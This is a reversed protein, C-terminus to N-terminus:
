QSSVLERTEAEDSRSAADPEPEAEVPTPPGSPEPRPEATTLVLGLVLGLGFSLLLVASRLDEVVAQIGIDGSWSNVHSQLWGPDPQAAIAVWAAAVLAPLFGILFPVAALRPRRGTTRRGALQTLVLVLGAAAVIGQVAWYGGTTSANIQTSTWVLLGALGAGILISVARTVERM